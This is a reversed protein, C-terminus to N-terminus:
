KTKLQDRIERLLLVEETTKDTKKEEKKKKLKNIQKVVIFITFAIILFDIITNVFMGYNLTVAETTETAQKLTVVLNSFDIGGLLVGIPPMIIDKVLSSVIKGFASGIIIGVAMDIMNGKIAFEKFEKFM